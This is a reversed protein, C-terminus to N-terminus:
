EHSVVVWQIERTYTFPVKVKMLIELEVSSPLKCM